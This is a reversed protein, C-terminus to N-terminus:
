LPHKMSCPASITHFCVHPRITSLWYKIHHNDSTFKYTQCKPSKGTLLTSQITELPKFVVNDLDSNSLLLYRVDWHWHLLEPLHNSLLNHMALLDKANLLSQSWEFYELSHFDQLVLFLQAVDFSCCNNQSFTLSLVQLNRCKQLSGLPVPTFSHM